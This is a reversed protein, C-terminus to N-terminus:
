DFLGIQRHGDGFLSAFQMERAGGRLPRAIETQLITRVDEIPLAPLAPRNMRDIARKIRERRQAKRNM